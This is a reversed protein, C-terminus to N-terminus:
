ISGAQALPIHHSSDVGDDVTIRSQRIGVAGHPQLDTVKKLNRYAESLDGSELAKIGAIRAERAEPLIKLSSAQIICFTVVLGALAAQRDRMLHPRKEPNVVRISTESLV